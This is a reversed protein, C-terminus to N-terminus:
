PMPLEIEMMEPQEVISDADSRGGDGVSIGAVIINDGYLKPHTPGGGIGTAVEVGNFGANTHEVEDWCISEDDIISTLFSALPSCLKVSSIHSVVATPLVFM